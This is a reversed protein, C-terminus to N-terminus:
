INGKIRSLEEIFFNSIGEKTIQEQPHLHYDMSSEPIDKTYILTESYTVPSLNPMLKKALDIINKLPLVNKSLYYLDYYDRLTSRQSIASLKLVAIIEPTAINLNYYRFSYDKVTFNVLVSQNTFFTIKIGDVLFDLQDYKEDRIIRHNKFIKSVSRKLSSGPLKEGDYIFDLDMSLRHKLQISLATGGVLTYDGIFSQKLLVAIVRNTEEKLFKLDPEAM